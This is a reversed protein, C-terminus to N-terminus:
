RELFQYAEVREEQLRYFRKLLDLATTSETVGAAEAM